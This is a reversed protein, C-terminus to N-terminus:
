YVRELDSYELAKKYDGQMQAITSILKYSQAIGIKHDLKKYLFFHLIQMFTQM